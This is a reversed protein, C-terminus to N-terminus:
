VIYKFFFFLSLLVSCEVFVFVGFLSEASILLFPGACFFVASSSLALIADIFHLLFVYHFRLFCLCLCRLRVSVVSVCVLSSRNSEIKM